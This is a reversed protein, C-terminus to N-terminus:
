PIKKKNITYNKAHKKKIFYLLELEECFSNIQKLIYKRFKGLRNREKIPNKNGIESINECKGELKVVKSNM